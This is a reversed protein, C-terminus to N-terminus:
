LSMMSIQLLLVLEKNCTKNDTVIKWADEFADNRIKQNNPHKWLPLGFSCQYQIANVLVVDYNINTDFWGNQNSSLYKMIKNDHRHLPSKFAIPKKSFDYEDKHPSEAIIVIINDHKLPQQPYLKGDIAARGIPTVNGNNLEGWVCDECLTDGAFKLSSKGSNNYINSIVPSFNIAM